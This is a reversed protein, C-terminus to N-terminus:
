VVSKRDRAPLGQLVVDPSPIGGLSAGDNDAAASTEDVAGDARIGGGLRPGLLAQAAEARAHCGEARLDGGLVALHAVAGSALDRTECVVRVGLETAHLLGAGTLRRVHPRLNAGVEGA